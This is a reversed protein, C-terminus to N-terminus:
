RRKSCSPGSDSFSFFVCVPGHCVNIQIIQMNLVLCTMANDGYSIRFLFSITILYSIGYFTTLFSLCM